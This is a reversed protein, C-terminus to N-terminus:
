GTPITAPMSHVSKPQSTQRCASYRLCTSVGKKSITLGLVNATRKFCSTRAADPPVFLLCVSVSTTGGRCAAAAAAAAAAADFNSWM